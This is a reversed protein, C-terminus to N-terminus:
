KPKVVAGILELSSDILVQEANPSYPSILAAYGEEKFEEATPLYNDFAGALGFIFTNELPSRQKVKLGIETFVEGPFTVIVTDGIRVAQQITKIATTKM